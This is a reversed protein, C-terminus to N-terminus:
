VDKSVFKVFEFTTDDGKVVGQVSASPASPFPDIPSVGGGGGGGRGAILYVILAIVLLGVRGGGARGIPIPFPLGGSSQGAEGRRDETDGSGAM